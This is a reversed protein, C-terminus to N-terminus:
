GRIMAFSEDSSFYAAGPLVTVTEKGKTHIYNISHYFLFFVWVIEFWDCCNYKHINAQQKTFVTKQKRSKLCNKM